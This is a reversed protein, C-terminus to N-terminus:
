CTKQIRDETEVKRTMQLNRKPRLRAENSDETARNTRQRERGREERM